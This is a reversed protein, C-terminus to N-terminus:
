LVKISELMEDENMYGCCYDLYHNLLEWISDLESVYPIENYMFDYTGSNEEMIKEVEDDTLNHLRRYEYRVCEYDCRVWDLLTNAGEIGNECVEKTIEGLLVERDDYTKKWFDYLREILKNKM